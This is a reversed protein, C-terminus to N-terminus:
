HPAYEVVLPLPPHLWLLLGHPVPPSSGDSLQCYNLSSYTYPLYTLCKLRHQGPVVIICPQSSTHSKHLPSTVCSQPWGLFSLVYSDPHCLSLLFSAKSPGVYPSITSLNALMHGPPDSPESCRYYFWRGSRVECPSHRGCHPDMSENAATPRFYYATRPLAHSNSGSDL